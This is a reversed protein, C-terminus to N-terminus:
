VATLPSKDKMFKVLIGRHMGIDSKKKALSQLILNKLNKKDEM